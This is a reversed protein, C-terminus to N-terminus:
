IIRCCLRGILGDVTWRSPVLRGFLRDHTGCTVDMSESGIYPKPVKDGANGSHVGRSDLIM